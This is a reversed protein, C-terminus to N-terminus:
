KRKRRVLLITGGLLMLGPLIWLMLLKMAAQQEGPLAIHQDLLEPRSQEVPFVGGSFWKFLATSFPVNNRQHLQITQNSMFDADGAVIIRQDHGNVKRQLAIAVAFNGAEDGEKESFVVMASDNVLRGKKLWTHEGANMLLPWIEFSSSDNKYDLAAAGPLFVPLQKNYLGAAGQSMDGASATLAAMLMDPVEDKNRTVLIGDHMKIGLPKLLPELVSWKGPETTVLLNGGADIYQHIKELTREGFAEKPDGIVLVALNNPIEQGDAITVVDFGNNVLSARFSKLTSIMTYSRDGPGNTNRQLQGSLFGATQISSPTMLRKLAASFQAESPWLEPDDYMRLFTSKGKYQLQLVMRGAENKLGPIKRAEEPGKFHDSSVNNTKAYEKAVQQLTQGKYIREFTRATRATTDYYYYFSFNISKYRAYREWIRLYANRADPAGYSYRTDLLNVYATMELPEDGTSKLLEQTAPTLTNVKQATADLWATLSPRSTLYGIAIALVLLGAYRAAKVWAPRYEQDARLRLISFCLFLATIIIFYLVDRSVIMGSFMDQTRSGLSLFYTLDRVFDIGQWVNGVYQLAAFVALTSLAAVVQYSTLCSMFLGIAAYASLLLLFGFLGSLMLGKDAHPIAWIAAMVFIALIFILLLNYVMMALFKGLVIQSTKVPSSYLLRISGSSVERSVLGMTLLPIYLYLKSVIMTFLGSRAALLTFTASRPQVTYLKAMKQMSLFNQVSDTFCLGCQVLFIILLLWAIPSYFMNSLEVRAIRSIKKM